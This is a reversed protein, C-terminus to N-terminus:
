DEDSDEDEDESDEDDDSDEDEEEFAPSAEGVGENGAADECTVELLFSPGEIELIGDDEDVEVEDDLELEVLQGNTVPVPEDDVIIFAGSITGPAGDFEDFCSFEVRFLGEDDDEDVPVLSATVHPPTTDPCGDADVSAGAPTDACLDDEDLVGDSDSDSTPPPGSAFM